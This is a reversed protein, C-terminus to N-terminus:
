CTHTNENKLISRIKHCISDITEQSAIEYQVKKRFYWYNNLWKKIYVSNPLFDLRINHKYVFLHIFRKLITKITAHDMPINTDLKNTQILNELVEATAKCSHGFVKRDYYKAIEDVEIPFSLCGSIICQELDEYNNVYRCNEYFMADYETELGFPRLCVCNKNSFFAEVITTSNSLVINDAIKIWQKVSEDYIIRFNPIELSLKELICDTREGPHPRYVVTYEKHERAFTSLYDLIVNKQKIEHEQLESNSSGMIKDMTKREIENMAAFSFSSIYLLIKDSSILYEDKITDKNKYYGELQNTLFDLHMAGTIPANKVGADTLRKQSYEGWCLQVIEKQMGKPTVFGSDIDTKSFIQEWQFNFIKTRNNACATAYYRISNENYVSFIGVVKPQKEKKRYDQSYDQSNMLEVSYGMDELLVKLFCLSDLERNIHEYIFLFDLM